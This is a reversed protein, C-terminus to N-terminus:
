GSFGTFYFDEYLKGNYVRNQIFSAFKVEKGIFQKLKDFCGGTVAKKSLKFTTLVPPGDNSLHEMTLVHELWQKSGDGNKREKTTLHRVVGSYFLEFGRM